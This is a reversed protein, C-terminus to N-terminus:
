CVWSIDQWQRHNICLTIKLNPFGLCLWALLLLHASQVEPTCSQEMDAWASSILTGHTFQLKPMAPLARAASGATPAATPALVGAWLLLM